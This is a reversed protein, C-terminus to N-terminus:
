HFLFGMILTEKKNQLLLCIMTGVEIKNEISKISVKKTEQSRVNNGLISLLLFIGIILKYKM